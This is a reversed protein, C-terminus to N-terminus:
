CRRRRTAAAIAGLALVSLGAPAPIVAGIFAGGVAPSFIDRQEFGPSAPGFIRIVGTGGSAQAVGIDAAGDGNLDGVAVRVGGTFAPDFAFFSQALVGTLGDFISVQPGAGPGASVVLEDRGDGTIDGAAVYVGGSFATDFAFFSNLLDGTQGSFVAVHSPGGPGASAIIDAYGDGNVDGTAVRVGGSFSPSFAFFSRILDGSAGDFVTVQSGAGSDAGVIVDAIGDGNVDGAAVYVGGSFSPAFAFFSRFEDGTQGDFVKVHPGAGPGAGTIIDPVGDGNVDGAAVRVGGTFTPAYAFFSHTLQGASNYAQVHPAFTADVGVVYAFSALASTAGGCAALLAAPLTTQAFSLRRSFM